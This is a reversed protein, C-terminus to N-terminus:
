IKQLSPIFKSYEVGAKSKHFVETYIVKATPKAPNWGHPKRYYKRDLKQQQTQPM